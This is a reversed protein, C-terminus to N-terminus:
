EWSSPRRCNLLELNLNKSLHGTSSMESTRCLDVIRASPNARCVSAFLQGDHLVVQVRQRSANLELAIRNHIDVALDSCHTRLRLVEHGALNWCTLLAVDDEAVLDLQFVNDKGSPGHDCIYRRGSPAMSLLELWSKLSPIQCQGFNKMGFGVARGDSQLLVTHFGGASVQIYSMGDALCPINCEGNSNSGCAVAHGDSRLLVTHFGGASVQTYALGEDLLPINCQSDFNLGCAAAHGDSQLFV